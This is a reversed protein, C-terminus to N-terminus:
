TELDVEIITFWTRLQDAAPLDDLLEFRHRMAFRESPKNRSDIRGIVLTEQDAEQDLIDALVGELATDAVVGGSGRHDCSIGIAKLSRIPGEFEM